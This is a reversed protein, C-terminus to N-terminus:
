QLDIRPHWLSVLGDLRAEPDATAPLWSSPVGLSRAAAVAVEPLFGQVGERLDFEWTNPDLMRWATALAPRTELAADIETLGEFIQPHASGAPFGNFFHPDMTNLQLGTGLTLTQAGATGTTLALALAIATKRM